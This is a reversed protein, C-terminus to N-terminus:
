QRRIISTLVLASQPQGFPRANGNVHIIPGGPGVGFLGCDAARRRGRAAQDLGGDARVGAAGVGARESPSSAQSSPALEVIHRQGGVEGLQVVSAAGRRAGRHRDGRRTEARLQGPLGSGDALPRGPHEGPVPSGGSIATPALRPREPDRVQRAAGQGQHYELFRFPAGYSRRKWRLWEHVVVPVGASEDVAIHYTILPTGRRERYKIEITVPGEADRTRLEKARGRRDWARRLGSEFCESLFAFVDFVTSKGSGNPGLLVTLPTLDKFEVERLARFNQVKLSEIRAPSNNTSAAPNM